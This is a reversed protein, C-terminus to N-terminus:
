APVGLRQQESFDWAARAVHRGMALPVGNGLVNVIFRKSASLRELRATIGDAGQLRGYEATPLNADLFGREDAYSSQGRSGQRNTSAIVSRSPTGERAAPVALWFPWTWFVRRRNTFGGCDWDRLMTPMWTSPIATHGRAQPVNEMVVWAPQADAVVRIFEPILDVASAAGGVHKANSFVQCPPGGIVGEFVGPPTNFRQIDGGWLIDPGRVVTFGMEEFAQDLLGMGPFVSLVLRQAM